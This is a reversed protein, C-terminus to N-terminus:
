RTAEIAAAANLVQTSLSRVASATLEGFPAATISMVVAGDPNRIPASVTAIAVTTQSDLEDALYDVVTLDAFAQALRITISDSGTPPGMARLASYVSVYEPTLRELVVGRDRVESLVASLRARLASSPEGIGDLWRQQDGAGAWAVFDRGFPAVLPLRFGPQLAPGRSADGAAEIVAITDAERRAVFVPLRTATHLERLVHQFPRQGASRTLALVAPGLSYGNTNNDRVAWRHETLTALIAHCTPRSIELTRSIETLSLAGANDTALLEVIRIARETPPSTAQRDTDDRSLTPRTM